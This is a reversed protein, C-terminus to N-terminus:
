KQSHKSTKSNVSLWCGAEVIAWVVHLPSFPSDSLPLRMPPPAAPPQNVPNMTSEDVEAGIHARLAVRPRISSFSIGSKSVRFGCPDLSGLLGRIVEIVFLSLLRNLALVNRMRDIALASRRETIAFLYRLSIAFLYRLRNTPSTRKNATAAGTPSSM